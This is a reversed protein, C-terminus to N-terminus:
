HVDATELGLRVTKAEREMKGVVKDRIFSDVTIEVSVTLFWPAAVRREAGGDRRRSIAGERTPFTQFKEFNADAM